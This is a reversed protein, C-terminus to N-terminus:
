GNKGGQIVEFMKKAKVREVTGPALYHQETVQESAHGLARSVVHGTAGEERALTSHTGRLGHPTVDPVGAAKCISRVSTRLWCHELHGSDSIGSKFVWDGSGKGEVLKALLGGIPEPVEHYRTAAATKGEDIWLLIGDPNVDVDRVKRLLVENRRLGLMLVLLAALAGVDGELARPLAVEYFRRAESKRLQMKGRKRRGMPEIDEAPSKRVISKKVLWRWFTKIQGLENRHTDVSVQGQRRLYQAELSAHTVSSVAADLNHWARLRYM